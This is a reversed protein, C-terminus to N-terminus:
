GASIAVSKIIAFVDEGARLDLLNVSRQTLRATIIAERCQMTVLAAGELMDLAIIKAPLVNLASIAEPKHRAIMVDAAPIRLRVTRGVPQTQSQSPVIIAGAPTQFESVGDAHHTQLRADLVAGTGRPGLYPAATADTLVTALDGQAKVLGGDLVVIRRALRTVETLAHSVYIVPLAKAIDEILPLILDRRPQDLAALPEDMLMLEPASMMARALSVRAAEGGSLAHPRRKALHAVGMMELADMPAQPLGAAPLRNRAHRQAFRLNGLVSLHAFLRPEQFVYGIRRAEPPTFRNADQWVQGGWTVRGLAGRELGAIVRLLTSKGAGSPGFLACVGTADIQTRIKLLPANTGNLTLDLDLM